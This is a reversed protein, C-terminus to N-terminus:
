KLEGHVMKYLPSDEPKILPETYNEKLWAIKNMPIILNRDIPDQKPFYKDLFWRIIKM